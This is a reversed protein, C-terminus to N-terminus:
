VEGHPQHTKKRNEQLMRMTLHSRLSGRVVGNKRVSIVM